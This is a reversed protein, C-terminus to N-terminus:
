ADDGIGWQCLACEDMERGGPGWCFNDRQRMGQCTMCWRQRSVGGAVFQGTTEPTAAQRIEAAREAIEDRTPLYRPAQDRHYAHKTM